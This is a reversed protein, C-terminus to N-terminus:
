APTLQVVVLLTLIFYRRCYPEVPGPVRSVKGLIPAGTLEGNPERGLTFVGYIMCSADPLPKRDCAADVCTESAVCEDGLVLHTVLGLGSSCDSTIGRIGLTEGSGRPM